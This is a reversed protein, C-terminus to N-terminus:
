RDSMAESRESPPSTMGENPPKLASREPVSSASEHLSTLWIAAANSCTTLVYLTM